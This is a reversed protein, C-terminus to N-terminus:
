QNAPFYRSLLAGGQIRSIKTKAKSPLNTPYLIKKRAKCDLASGKEKEQKEEGRGNLENVECCKEAVLTYIRCCFGTEAVILKM